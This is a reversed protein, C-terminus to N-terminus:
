YRNTLLQYGRPPNITAVLPVYGPPLYQRNIKQYQPPWHQSTQTFPRRSPLEFSTGTPKGPWPYGSHIIPSTNYLNNIIGVGELKKYGDFSNMGYNFNAQYDNFQKHSGTSHYYNNNMSGFNNAPPYETTFFNWPYNSQTLPPPSQLALDGKVVAALFVVIIVESFIRVAM